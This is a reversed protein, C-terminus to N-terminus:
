GGGARAPTGHARELRCLGFLRVTGLTRVEITDAVVNYRQGDIEVQCPGAPLSEWAPWALVVQGRGSARAGVPASAPAEATLLCPFDRRVVVPFGTVTPQTLDRQYITARHLFRAVLRSALAHHALPRDM